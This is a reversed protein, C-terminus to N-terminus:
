RLLTVDGKYTEEEGNAFRVTIYYVYVDSPAAEGNVKGNWVKESPTAEFVQNGWRNFVRFEVVELESGFTIAGSFTDNNGDGDPTFANPFAICRQVLVEFPGAGATCGNATTAIVTYLVTTPEAAGPPTVVVSDQTAGPIVEGNQYWVLTASAPAVEVELAIRKGECVLEQLTDTTIAGLSVGPLVNVTVPDLATCNPQYTFVATYTTTDAPTVTLSAGNGPGPSWTITGTVGPSTTVTANLTVPVGFCASQDAGANITASNVTVTVQGQNKCQGQAQVSYTTTTAPTVTPNSIGPNSISAPDGPPLVTM